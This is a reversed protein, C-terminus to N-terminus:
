SKNMQFLKRLHKIVIEQKHAMVSQGVRDAIVGTFLNILKVQEYNENKELPNEKENEVLINQTKPM